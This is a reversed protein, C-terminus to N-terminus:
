ETFKKPNLIALSAPASSTRPKLGIDELLSLMEWDGYPINLEFTDIGATRSLDSIMRLVARRSGAYEVLSWTREFKLTSIYAIPRGRKYAVLHKVKAVGERIRRGALLKFEDLSRKFRVPERQYLAVLDMVKDETYPKVEVEESVTLTSPRTKFRYVRGAEVCGARSYLTRKGSVMVLDVGDERMKRFADRVLASAYGRNRYDPHTCVAGVLGAKVWCGYINLWGEWFGVHSVVKGDSVIVRLNEINSENLFHPFAEDMRAGVREFGFIWSTLKVIQPLEEVKAARPGEIVYSVEEYVIKCLM